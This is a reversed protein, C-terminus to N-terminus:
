GGKKLQMAFEKERRKDKVVKWIIGRNPSFLISVLVILSIVLVITPGTPIQQGLSSIM